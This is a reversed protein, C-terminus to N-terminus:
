RDWRSKRADELKVVRGKLDAIDHNSTAVHTGLSHEIDSLKTRLAWTAGVVSGVVAVVHWFYDM